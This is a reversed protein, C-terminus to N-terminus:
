TLLLPQDSSPPAECCGAGDEVTVATAGPVVVTVPVMAAAPWFSATACASRLLMVCGTAGARAAVELAPPDTATPLM